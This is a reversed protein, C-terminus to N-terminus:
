GFPPVPTCGTSAAIGTGGFGDRICEKDRGHDGDEQTGRPSRSIGRDKRCGKWDEQRREMRKGEQAQRGGTGGDLLRFRHRLFSPVIVISVSPVYRAVSEPPIWDSADGRPDTRLYPSPVPVVVPRIPSPVRKKRPDERSRLIRVGNSACGRPQAGVRKGEEITRWRGRGRATEGTRGITGRGMSADVMPLNSNGQM